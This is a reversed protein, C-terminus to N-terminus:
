SLSARDLITRIALGTRDKGASCHILVPKKLEDFSSIALQLNVDSLPPYEYDTQPIHAVEFGSDRYYSILGNPLDSYFPLQDNSLFCIISEVGMEKVETIWSDVISQTIGTESPHGPRSSKALIGESVWESDYGM